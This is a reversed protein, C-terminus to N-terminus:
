SSKIILSQQGLRRSIADAQDSDGGNQAAIKARLEQLSMQSTWMTPLSRNRRTELLHWLKSAWAETMKGQSIDDIVLIPVKTGHLWRGSAGERDREARAAEDAIERAQTGSWWLFPMRLRDILCAVTCSKGAGSEAVLGLGGPHGSNSWSLAPQFIRPVRSTSAARYGDPMRSAWLASWANRTAEQDERAKRAEGCDDCLPTIGKFLDVGMLIAPEWEVAKRCEPCLGTQIETTM